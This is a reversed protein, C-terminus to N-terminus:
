PVEYVEALTVGTTGGGGSVQATYSGPQL